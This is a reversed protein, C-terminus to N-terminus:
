GSALAVLREGIVERRWGKLLADTRGSFVLQEVTRRTALLEPSIKLEEARTRVFSMLKTVLSVQRPDPRQFVVSEPEESARARAAAIVDLLEKGRKRLTAPALGRTQELAQLSCPLREAMDRLSEDSLIWGRPKDREMALTERWRALAKAVSRQEPQLRDLGKLRKWAEDPETRYLRPDELEATEEFLWVLRGAAELAARLDEYLPVLYKADDAAYELQEASLPRRTWDTRTHGKALSHGLRQEVLNGYGIQAPYGLLAAAIQTDFLPGPVVPATQLHPQSLVELDQRASHLVKLRQRDALREMLPRLEELALPDILMCHGPVAAQVLCLRAYYTSERMFETDLAVYDSDSLRELAAALQEQTEVIVPQM